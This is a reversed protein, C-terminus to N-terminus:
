RQRGEISALLIGAAIGMRRDLLFNPDRSFDLNLKLLFPNFNQKFDLLDQGQVEVSYSQPILNSLFRRAMAMAMSDEMIKGYENDNVDLITWEDRLVSKLGARRLAGIKQQQGVDWVDFTPSIDLIQRAKIVLAEQTKAEDTYVRIDEKLKMAKMECYFALEGNPNYIRFKRHWFNLFARKIIYHPHTYPNIGTSM